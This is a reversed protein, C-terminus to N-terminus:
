KLSEELQMESIFCYGIGDDLTLLTGDQCRIKFSDACPYDKDEGESYIDRISVVYHLGEHSRCADEAQKFVYDHVMGVRHRPYSSCSVLLASFLLILNRM